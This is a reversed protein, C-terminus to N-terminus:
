QYDAIDYVFGNLLIWKGDDLIHNELDSQRVLITEEDTQFPINSNRCIIGPWGMNDNDQIESDCVIRNLDDLIGLLPIFTNSWDFSQLLIMPKDRHLLVLGVLLEYLLTDSVDAALIETVNNEKGQSAIEYAKSLTVICSTVLHHIYEGLLAEAGSLEDLSSAQHIYSLLLRQFRHLLELSPSLPETTKVNCDEYAKYYPGNVLLQTLRAQTLASNNRLLQKILHLLPLNHSNSTEEAESNIAQKLATQLGEEAM